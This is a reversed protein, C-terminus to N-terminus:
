DIPRIFLKLYVGNVPGLQAQLLDLHLIDFANFTTKALVPATFGTPPTAGNRASDFPTATSDFKPTTSFISAFSGGTEPKWKVDIETTGSSGMGNGAYIIAAVIEFNFPYTIPGDIALNPTNVINYAGNLNFDHATCEKLALFNNMAGMRTMTSESVAAQSRTEEQQIIQRSAPIATM